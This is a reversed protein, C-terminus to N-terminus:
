ALVEVIVGKLFDEILRVEVDVAEHGCFVEVVDHSM